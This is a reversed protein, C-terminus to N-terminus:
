FSFSRSLESKTCPCDQVTDNYYSLLFQNKCTLVWGVNFVSNEENVKKFGESCKAALAELM